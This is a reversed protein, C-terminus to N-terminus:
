RIGHYIGSGVAFVDTASSGWVGLLSLNSGSIGTSQVTWAAGNFHLLVSGGAAYVDTPSSGWVAILTNTDPSVQPSWNSGNYFWIAGSTGVAFAHNADSAWVGNLDDAGHISTSTSGNYHIIKGGVGVAWVDNDTTGWVGLLDVTGTDPIQTWNGSGAHGHLILGGAGVAYVSTNSAAWLANIDGPTGLLTDSTWVTGNTSHTIVVDGALSAAGAAYLDGPGSGGVTNLYDAAVGAAFAWSSGNYHLVAGNGGVAYANNSGTGWVSNLGDALEQLSTSVTTGNYRLVTGLQGGAFLNTSSLGWLSLINSPFSTTIPTWTVGNTSHLLTGADGVAFIDTASTGWVANLAEAQGSSITTVTNGDYHLLNGGACAAYVDTNSSGWVSFCNVNGTVAGIKDWTNGDFKWLQGLSGVAFVATDSAGWVSAFNQSATDPSVAWGTGDDHLITGGDGVAYVDSSSSGWVGALSNTTGSAQKLWSRGDYHLISGGGGVAYVNLTDTGWVGLLGNFGGSPQNRWTTGNFRWISGEDTVAFVANANAGWIGNFTGTTLQPSWRLVGGEAEVKADVAVTFTFSAQGHLAWKWTQPTSVAFPGISQHYVFYHQGTTTFTGVSDTVTVVPAAPDTLFFVRVGTAVGNSDGLTQALLNQVSIDGQFTDGASHYAVNASRLTVYVGQSGIQLDSKMTSAPTSCKIAQTAVTGTCTILASSAGGGVPAFPAPRDTCSSIGLLMAVPVLGRRVVRLM